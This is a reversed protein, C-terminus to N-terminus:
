LKKVNITSARLMHRKGPPGALRKVEFGSARLAQKVIGKACYTTLIANSNTSEYLKTFIEATWLDPQIDPAFADFYILDYKEPFSSTRLDGLLKHLTFNKTIEVNNNWKAQHIKQFLDKGLPVTNETYNLSEIQDKELPYLEISHYIIKRNTKISELLTLFCNLGTGFGIELIHIPNKDTFNLGAELFVHKSEQVAGHTSHYHEDLDPMYFTYSGDETIKLERKLKKM